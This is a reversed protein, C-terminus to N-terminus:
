VQWKRNRFEIGMSYRKDLMERCHKVYMKNNNSPEFNLQFQFIVLGLKKENYTELLADNFIKWIGLQFEESCELYKVVELNASLMKRIINPISNIGISQATFLQFAKFHFIFQAPTANLWEKIRNRHPIAYSSTDVEVSPFQNSYHILREAATKVSSPYFRGCRLISADTWGCTGLILKRNYISPCNAISESNKDNNSNNNNNNKQDTSNNELEGLHQDNSNNHNHNNNNNNNNINM